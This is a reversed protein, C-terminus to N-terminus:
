LNHLFLKSPLVLPPVLSCRQGKKGFTNHEIYWQYGVSIPRFVYPTSLYSIDTVQPVTLDNPLARFVPM